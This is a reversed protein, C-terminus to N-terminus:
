FCIDSQESWPCLFLNYFGSNVHGRYHYPINDDAIHKEPTCIGFRDHIPEVASLVQNRAIVVTRPDVSDIRAFVEFADTVYEFRRVASVCNRQAVVQHECPVMLPFRIHDVSMDMVVGVKIEPRKYCLAAINKIGANIHVAKLRDSELFQPFVVPHKISFTALTLGTSCFLLAATPL